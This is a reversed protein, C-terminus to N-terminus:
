DSSRVRRGRTEHTGKEKMMRWLAPPKLDTTSLRFGVADEVARVTAALAGITGAEGVGRAHHPLASPHEVIRSDVKVYEASSPVGTDAISAAVPQGDQNYEFSEYLVQSIGQLVGGYVQGEIFERNLTRGVDDVAGYHVVNVLGTAADVEVVALHVGFAYVDKGSFFKFSRFGGAERALENMSIGARDGNRRVSFKEFKLEALPAGLTKAAVAMAMGKVERCAEVVAAGGIAAGRSGFTGVGSPALDSDGALVKVASEDLGLEEAALFAAVEKLGQGHPGSGIVLTVSGDETITIGASEGISSRNLEAYDVLATGTLRGKRRGELAWDKWRPYDLSDIAAAFGTDYGSADITLGFPTKYSTEGRILNKMRVESPDVRLDEALMDMMREIFFAGEPRGAGRYPGTPTKNTFVGTAEISAAGIAYPGTTLQSIFGPYNANISFNYAGIDSVVSGKVAEVVGARTAAISLRARSDRGHHTAVLNEGRTEVWKVPKGTLKAALCCLVYEPHAPSKSGFAGGVNPQIVHLRDPPLGLAQSMSNRLSYVGQSSAWITYRSGDYSAIVGRTEIPNPAVRHVYMEDELVRDAEGFIREVDGSGLTARISINSGRDEHIITGGALASRADLVPELPEYDISVKDGLDAAEYSSRAVLGVIPQGVFNVKGAALVPMKVVNPGYLSDAPLLADGFEKRLIDRTLVLVAGKADATSVSQLRARSYISRVVHLHLADNPHM